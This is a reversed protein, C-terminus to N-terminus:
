DKSYNLAKQYIEERETKTILKDITLSGVIFVILMTINIILSFKLGITTIQFFVIPLKLSGWVMLFFLVNSYKAGKKIMIIVLPFASLTPGASFAGLFFALAMGKVGSNEGMLKIVTERPVWVDFLGILIFIPPVIMLMTWVQFASEELAKITMTYDVFTIAILLLISIVLFKNKNIFMIM